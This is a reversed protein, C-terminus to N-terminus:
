RPVPVFRDIGRVRTFSMSWDRRWSLLAEHATFGLTGDLEDVHIFRALLPEGSGVNRLSDVVAQDDTRAIWEDLTEPAFGFTLQRPTRNGMWVSTSAQLWFARGDDWARGIEARAAADGAVALEFLAEARFGLEPRDALRRLAARTLPGAGTGFPPLAEGDEHDLYWELLRAVAGDVEGAEVGSRFEAWVSQPTDWPGLLYAVDPHVGDAIAAAGVANALAETREEEAREFPERVQRRLFSDVGAAGSRALDEIDYSDPDGLVEADRDAPDAPRQWALIPAIARPDGLQVTWRTLYGSDWSTESGPPRGWGLEWLRDMLERRAGLELFARPSFPSEPGSDDMLDEFDDPPLRRVVERAVAETHWTPHLLALRLLTDGAIESQLAERELGRFAAPPWEYGWGFREGLAEELHRAGDDADAGRAFLTRSLFDRGAAPHEALLLMLAISEVEARERLGNLAADDGRRALASLVVAEQVEGSGQAALERLAAVASEDDIRGVAISAAGSVEYDDNAALSLLLELDHPAPVEDLLWRLAFTHARQAGFDDLRREAVAVLLRRLEEPLGSPEQATPLEDGAVSLLGRAIRRRGSRVAGLVFLLHDAIPDAGGAAVLRDALRGLDEDTTARTSIRQAVFEAHHLDAHPPLEAVARAAQDRSAILEFTEFSVGGEEVPILALPILLEAARDMEWVDMVRVPIQRAIQRALEDDALRLGARLAAILEPDRSTDWDPAEANPDTALALEVARELDDATPTWGGVDDGLRTSDSRRVLPAFRAGSPTEVSDPTKAEGRRPRREPEAEPQDARSREAPVPDDTADPMGTPDAVVVAVVAWVVGALVVAGVGVVVGSKMRRVEDREAREGLRSSEM